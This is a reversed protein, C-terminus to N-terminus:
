FRFLIIVDDFRGKVHRLDIIECNDHLSKFIHASAELNLVDEICYLSGKAMYPKLLNFTAVSDAVMHSSDENILNFKIGEDLYKLFEPKTADAEIIKVENKYEQEPFVISIDVGFIRSDNFYRDYLKMSDGTALGIEMFNCNDRYPAFLEDYIPLYSHTSNKDNGGLDLGSHNGIEKFIDVLSEKKM